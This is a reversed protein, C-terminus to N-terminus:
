WNDMTGVIENAVFWTKNDVVYRVIKSDSKNIDHYQDTLLFLYFHIMFMHSILTKTTLYCFDTQVHGKTQCISIPSM